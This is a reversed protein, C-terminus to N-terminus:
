ELGEPRLRLVAFVGANTFLWRKYDAMWRILKSVGVHWPTPAIDGSFTASLRIDELMGAWHAPGGSVFLESCMDNTAPLSSETSEGGSGKQDQRDQWAMSSQQNMQRMMVAIGEVSQHDHLRNSFQHLNDTSVFRKFGVKNSSKPL